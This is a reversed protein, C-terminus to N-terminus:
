GRSPFDVPVRLRFVAGATEADDEVDLTGHLRRALQRAVTLGLGTGRTASDTRSPDCLQEFPQFIREREDAPIGPGTDAVRFEITGPDSATRAEVRVGGRPTFKLANGVV